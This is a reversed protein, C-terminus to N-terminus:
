FCQACPHANCFHPARVAFCIGIIRVFHYTDGNTPARPIYAYVKTKPDYARVVAGVNQAYATAM